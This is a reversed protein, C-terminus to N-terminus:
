GALGCGGGYRKYISESDLKGYLLRMENITLSGLIKNLDDPKMNVLEKLISYILRKERGSFEVERFYEDLGEEDEMIEAVNAIEVVNAIDIQYEQGDSGFYAIGDVLTVGNRDVRRYIGGIDDRYGIWM